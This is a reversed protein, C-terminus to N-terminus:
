QCARNLGRGRSKHEVLLTGKWLPDIFGQRGGAKKISVGFSAVRRRKIDFVHFFDLPPAHADASM